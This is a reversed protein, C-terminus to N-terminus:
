SSSNDAISQILKDWRNWIKDESYEKMDERANSGLQKRLNPNKMLLELKKAIDDPEDSCLFGNHGDKILSNVSSCSECGIAPLGKAMAETLALPFGEHESPFIFISAENLTEEIFDTSGCLRIQDNLQHDLILQEVTETYKPSCTPEGWLEIKWNPYKDKILSFAEVILHQRKEPSIRGVHIITPKDLIAGGTAYQPVFNPIVVTKKPTIWNILEEQYEPMLVQCCDCNELSSKYHVFGGEEFYKSPKGHFMTIVPASVKLLEKLIFTTEQQFSIIVDPSVESIIRGIVDAKRHLPLMQRKQRRAKKSPLYISHLKIWFKNLKVPINKFQVRSDVPFVPEGDNNDCAISTVSYGREVLANGMSFFVKETGGYANLVRWLNVLVVKMILKM